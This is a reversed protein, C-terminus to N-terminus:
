GLGAQAYALRGDADFGLLTGARYSQGLIPHSRALVASRLGGSDHFDISVGAKCPITDIDWDAPLFVRALRGAKALVLSTGRPLARGAVVHERALTACSLRGSAHLIISTDGACPIDKIACDRALTAGSLRQNAHFEVYTGARCPVGDLEQDEGLIVDNVRGDQQGTRYRVWTGAGFWLRGFRCPEALTASFLEGTRHFGAETEARCPVGAILTDRTFCVTRPRGDGYRLTVRYAAEPVAGLAGTAPSIVPQGPQAQSGGRGLAGLDYEVKAHVHSHEFLTKFVGFPHYDCGNAGVIVPQWFEEDGDGPVPGRIEWRGNSAARMVEGVYAVISALIAPDQVLNHGGFRQAAQDIHELSDVSGDLVGAALNLKGALEQALPVAAEIFGRGQRFRTGLPHQPQRKATEEVVALLQRYEAASAYLRASGDFIEVIRNDSLRYLEQQLTHGLIRERESALETDAAGGVDTVLKRAQRSGIAKGFRTKAM